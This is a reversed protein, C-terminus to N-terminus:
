PFKNSFRSSIYLRELYFLFIHIRKGKTQRSYIGRRLQISESGKLTQSLNNRKRITSREDLRTLPHDSRSLLHQRQLQAASQILFKWDFEVTKAVPLLKPQLHQPRIIGSLRVFPSPQNLRARSYAFLRGQQEEFHIKQQHSM